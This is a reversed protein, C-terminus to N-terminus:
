DEPLIQASIVRASRTTFEPERDELNGHILGAPDFELELLVNQDHVAYHSIVHDQGTSMWIGQGPMTIVTGPLIDIRIRSDAGSIAQGSAPDYCMVKWGIMKELVGQSVPAAM